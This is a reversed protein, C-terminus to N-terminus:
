KRRKFILVNKGGLPGALEWGQEGLEKLVVVVESASYVNGIDGEHMEAMYYLHPGGPSANVYACTYSRYEWQDM